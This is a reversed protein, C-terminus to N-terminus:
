QPDDGLSLLISSGHAVGQNKTAPTCTTNPVENITELHELANSYLREFKFM